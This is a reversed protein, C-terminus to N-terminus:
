LCARRAGSVEHGAYQAPLRGSAGDLTLSGLHGASASSDYAAGSARLAAPQPALAAIANAPATYAAGGAAPPLQSFGSPDSM